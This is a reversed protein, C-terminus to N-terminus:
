QKVGGLIFDTVRALESKPQEAKEAEGLGLAEKFAALLDGGDNQVVRAKAITPADGELEKLRTDMGELLKTIAPDAKAEKTSAEKLAEVLAQKNAEILGTGFEKLGAGLMGAFDEITISALTLPKAARARTAKTEKKEAAEDESEAETSEDEAEPDEEAKMEKRVHGRADAAKEAAEAGALVSAVAEEDGVLEKLKDIKAKQMEHEKTIAGIAALANSKRGAPLFSREKVMVGHFVGSADRLRRYYDFGISVGLEGAREKVAQAVQENIFTGSEILVAGHMASFDCHGIVAGPVHWWLLPGYEKTADMREVDAELAAQSVIEGDRDKFASSSYALWRYGGAQKTVSFQEAPASRTLLM